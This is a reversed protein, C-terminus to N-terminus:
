SKDLPDAMQWYHEFMLRMMRAYTPSIIEIGVKQDHKWHYIAVTDNYIVTQSDFQITDPSLVRCSYLGSKMLQESALPPLESTTYDRNILDRTKYGAAIQRERHRLAWENDSVAQEITGNGFAVVDGKSNLEHWCMQKLGEEGEYTRVVFANRDNRQLASLTPMLQGFVTWQRKLREENTVLEVELTSPDAAVLFTGRDDTRRAILSRKELEEAMRYVKTRNIGTRRSLRLHTAPGKLLELYIVAEDTSLNLKRLQKIATENNSM